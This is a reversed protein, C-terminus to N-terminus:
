QILKQPIIRAALCYRKHYDRSSKSRIGDVEVYAGQLLPLMCYRSRAVRLRAEVITNLPVCLGVTHEPEATILSLPKMSMSACSISSNATKGVPNVRQPLYLLLVTIM